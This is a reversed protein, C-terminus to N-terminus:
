VEGGQVTCEGADCHERPLGPSRRCRHAILSSACAAQSLSVRVSHSSTVHGVLFARRSPGRESQEHTVQNALHRWVEGNKNTYLNM